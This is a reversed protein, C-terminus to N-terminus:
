SPDFALADDWSTGAALLRRYSMLQQPRNFGIAATLLGDRGYIAVFNRDDTAGDIVKVQDDPKARGLYQIKVDYQDSWFYPVPAFPRASEPGQLLNHIAVQAQEGANTWHEVRLSEGASPHHWRAVDGVAVVGPAAHCTADCVVGDSLQLPSSELWSTNPSVGIAVLMADAPVLSGDSLRVAEVRGDGEVVSVTMGTRVDVVHDRQLQECV